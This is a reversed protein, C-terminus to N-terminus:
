SFVSLLLEFVCDQRDQLSRRLTPLTQTRLFYTFTRPNEAFSATSPVQWSGHIIGDDLPDDYLKVSSAPDYTAFGYFACFTVFQRLGFERSSTGFLDHALEALRMDFLM